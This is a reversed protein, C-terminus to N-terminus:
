PLSVKRYAAPVTLQFDAATFKRDAACDTLSLTLTVAHAPAKMVLRAPLCCPGAPLGEYLAEFLVGDDEDLLLHAALHGSAADLLLRHTVTAEGQRLDFWYGRGDAAGRVETLFLDGPEIAATFWYYLSEPRMGPPAYSAFTTGAVAGEYVTADPVMLLRFEQGNTAFLVVPQDLPGLGVFRVSAPAMAQLYGSLTVNRLFSHLAVTAQADVGAACAAQRNLMQQLLQRAQDREPGIVPRLRSISACGAPLLLSLLLLLALAPRLLCPALALTFWPRQRPAPSLPSLVALM